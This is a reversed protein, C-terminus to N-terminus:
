AAGALAALAKANEARRIANWVRMRWPILYWFFVSWVNVGGMLEAGNHSISLAWCRNAVWVSLGSKRHRANYGDSVWEEPHDRLSTLVASVLERNNGM